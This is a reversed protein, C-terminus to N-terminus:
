GVIRVMGGNWRSLIWILDPLAFAVCGATPHRPKRWAHLFIASGKGAVVPGMNYDIVGIVDYLRDARRLKEEGPGDALILHNYRPDSPDDCWAQRLGIPQAGPLRVRDPRAYVETLRFSGRPTIMDGEGRKEGIGNRGVACCFRRGQFLAGWRTITLDHISPKIYTM